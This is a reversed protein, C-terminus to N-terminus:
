RRQRSYSMIEDFGFLLLLLGSVIEVTHIMRVSNTIPVIDSSGVMGLTTVSLYLCEPFNVTRISGAIQFNPQLSIRDVVTYIAAFVIALLSYFTLFAFAPAVLRAARQFFAGFLLGIDLLFVAVDRSASLVVVSIVAMAAIFIRSQLYASAELQPLLFTTAGVAFVPTLWVVVRAFHGEDRIRRSFIVRHISRRRLLSGGLFALLPMVFGISLMWASVSQFNSEVFFLFVCAYVGILNALAFAFFRSGRFFYRFGTIMVIVSAVVVPALYVQVGEIALAILGLLASTLLLSSIFDRHRVAKAPRRMAVAPKPDRGGATL